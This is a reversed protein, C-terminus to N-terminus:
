HHRLAVRLINVAILLIIGLIIGWNRGFWSKEKVPASPRPLEVKNAEMNVSNPMSPKQAFPMVPPQQTIMTTNLVSAKEKEFEEQSLIGKEKLEKLQFLAQIQEDTMNFVM